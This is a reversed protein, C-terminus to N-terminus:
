IDASDASAEIPRGREDVLTGGNNEFDSRNRKHGEKETMMSSSHLHHPSGGVGLMNGVHVGIVVENPLTDSPSSVGELSGM